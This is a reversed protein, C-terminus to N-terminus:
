YWDNTNTANLSPTILSLLYNLNRSSFCRNRPLLRDSFNVVGVITAWGKGLLGFYVDVNIVPQGHMTTDGQNIDLKVFL